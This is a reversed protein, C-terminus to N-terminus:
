SKNQTDQTQLTYYKGSPKIFQIYYDGENLNNFIYYGPSNNLDNTTLTTDLVTMNSSLLKIVMGNLYPQNPDINDNKNLDIWTRGSIKGNNTNQVKVGVKEPEVPLIKM